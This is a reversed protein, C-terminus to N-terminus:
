REARLYREPNQDFADACGPNCFYYPTGKYSRTAAAGAKVVIMKCVPDTATEETSASTSPRFPGTDFLTDISVIRGGDLRYWNAMAMREVQHDLLADFLVCVDSGDIFVKKIEHGRLAKAAHASGRTFAAASEFHAGPGTWHLDKALFARAGEVNGSYYANMYREVIERSQDV